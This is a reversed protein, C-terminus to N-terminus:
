FNGVQPIHTSSCSSPATDLHAIPCRYSQLSLIRRHHCHILVIPPVIAPIQSPTRDNWIIQVRRGKWTRRPDTKSPGDSIPPKEPRKSHSTWIPPSSGSRPAHNANSPTSASASSESETAQSLTPLLRCPTPASASTASYAHPSTSAMASYSIRYPRLQSPQPSTASLIAQPPASMAATRCILAYASPLRAWLDLQLM